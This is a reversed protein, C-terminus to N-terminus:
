LAFGEPMPDAEGERHGWGWHGWGERPAGGFMDLFPGEAYHVCRHFFEEPKRSHERRNSVIVQKIDARLRRGKGRRGLIVYEANQRTTYGGGMALDSDLLPTGTLTTMAFKNWTKLWVFMLSSPEIGWAEFLRLHVGQVLLPGTLWAAVLANPLLIDRMPITMLHEISATPYHKQPSRDAAADVLKARQEFHWPCDIAAFGVREKPVPPFPLNDPQPGSM